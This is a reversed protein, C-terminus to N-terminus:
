SAPTNELENTVNRWEAFQGQGISKKLYDYAFQYVENKDSVLVGFDYYPEEQAYYALVSQSPDIGKESLLHRIRRWIMQDSNHFENNLRKTELDQIM